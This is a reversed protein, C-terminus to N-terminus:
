GYHLDQSLRSLDPVKIYVAPRKILGATESLMIDLVPKVEMWRRDETLKFRRLDPRM